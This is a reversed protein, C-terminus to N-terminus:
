ESERRFYYSHKCEECTVEEDVNGWDDTSFDQEWYKPCDKGEEECTSCQENCVIEYTVTESYIGSGMM